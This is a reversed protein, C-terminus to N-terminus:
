ELSFLAEAAQNCRGFLVSLGGYFFALADDIKGASVMNAFRECGALCDERASMMAQFNQWDRAEHIRAGHNGWIADTRNTQIQQM